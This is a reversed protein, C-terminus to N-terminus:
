SKNCRGESWGSSLYLPLEEPKIRKTHSGNNIWVRGSTNHNGKMASSMKKCFEDSRPGSGNTNHLLSQSIRSKHIDTFKTGANYKGRDNGELSKSISLKHEESLHRGILSASLHSRWEDSFARAYNPSNVGYSSGGAGGPACNYYDRSEVCDFYSILFREESNLEDESFCPCLMEVSFNDLGYKNIAKWLVSGSGVYTPDFEKSRHKGIYGKGNILNTTLYIYGYM